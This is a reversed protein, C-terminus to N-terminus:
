EMNSQIIGNLTELSEITQVILSEMEKSMGSAQGLLHKWGDILEDLTLNEADM